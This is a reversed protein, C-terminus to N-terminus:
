LFWVALGYALLGGVVSALFNVSDNDIVSFGKVLKSKSGCSHIPRETQKGDRECVYRAQLIAGFVSDALSGVFAAFAVILVFNVDGIFQPYFVDSFGSKALYNNLANFLVALIGILLAAGASAGLGLLSVVGSQGRQAKKGTLVSYAKADLMGIETAWTDATVTAVAAAFAAFLAADPQLFHVAALVTAFLSNALVQWADRIDGKEHESAFEDKQKRKFKSWASSSVFFSVLLLFWSWGGLAFIVFGVGMAAIVGKENLQRKKFAFIAILLTIILGVLTNVQSAM